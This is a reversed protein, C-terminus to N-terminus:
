KKSRRIKAATLGCVASAGLLVTWVGVPTNDGTKPTQNEGDSVNDPNQADTGGTSGAPTKGSDAAPNKGPDETPEKGPDEAPDKGPDEGPEEGPEEKLVEEAKAAAEELKDKLDSSILEKQADSLADYAEKVDLVSQANDETIQDAAPLKEIQEAVQDAAQQDPDEGPEEKLVEEAKAAAEELRDKLDSSILEKQADSLADYAEKVDLVSQANDKTIQDAAPLKEIQGAVQDAAQQDPDEGPEEGPEEKLAEEAKAAAAELRDKLDSSILEKQADSLADYAEKVDLVSQANDKIIQDAAPLSGIQEAVDQAAALDDTSMYETVNWERIAISANSKSNDMTMRISKTVVPEFAYTNDEDAVFTDYSGAPTVQQWQGDSDLYEITLGDPLRAGGGDDYWNVVCESLVVDHDFTYSIWPDPIVEDAKWSCYFTNVDGDNANEKPNNGAGPREFKVDVVATKALYQEETIEKVFVRMTDKGRNNWAYYPIFTWEVSELSGSDTKSLGDAHIIMGEQIGYPDDGDDNNTLVNDVVEEEFNGTLFANRIDFDHDAGEAAYVVPGRKVAALGANSTVREDSHYAETEMPFDIEVKDGEAWERDIVIYGSEDPKADVAEGNVKVSNEKDAWAPVRLRLAFDGSNEVTIESTGYWPMQTEMNLGITQDGVTIDAQNGIYLNVTISDTDHTYIYGGLSTVTRMLNPPCCACGFWASRDQDGNSSMPNQYFFKDGDFNVGSIVSNYLATEVTDIYEADGNLLNMRQGWMMSGINACTEAYANDNPLYWSSGFGEASSTGGKSGIGGTVYTKTQLDEWISNLADDYDDADMWSAIDAMASYQYMARVSHGAAIDQNQVTTWNQRYYPDNLFDSFYGHNMEKGRMDLFFKALNVYDTVRSSYTGTKALCEETPTDKGLAELEECVTALKVLGLEIEQHGPYSEWKGEGFLRNVMDANRIAVNFLRLDEYNTARTYAAAAEYFHGFCYMEHWSFNTLRKVGNTKGAANKLTFYTQLYGDYQDLEENDVPNGEADLYKEQAGEIYGIWTDILSRFEDQKAIVEEDGAPDLQLAYSMAEIMKYTDTDLFYLNDTAGEQWGTARFYPDFDDAETGGYYGHLQAAHKLNELGGSNNSGTKSINEIGTPIVECIFEKQKASWFDDHIVVDNFNVAKEAEKGSSAPITVDFTKEKTDEGLTIEATFTVNVDESGRNVKAENDAVEVAGKGDEATWSIETGWEGATQLRKDYYLKEPFELADYASQLKTENDLGCMEEVEAQTAAMSYITINDIAGSLNSPSYGSQGIYKESNTKAIGPNTTSSIAVDQKVGNRYIAIEQTESNYVAVVHVWENEPFFSSVSGAYGLYKQGAMLDVGHGQNGLTLYWGTASDYSAQDKCWLLIQEGSYGGEPAKAWFSVTLDSPQLDVSNGLSIKANNVSLAKGSGDYGETYDVTGSELVPTHKGTGDTLDGDEFTMELVKSEELTAPEDEAWVANLDWEYIGVSMNSESNDMTMRVATTEVEEFEYTNDTRPTFVNYEGVPTVETWTTGDDELYEITLGNPVKVGTGDEFWNVICESVKIEKEFTYSIWPDEIVEDQKWSCYFTSTDGDKANEKPNNGAGPREFKVAVAADTQVNVANDEGAAQATQAPAAPLVSGAVLAMALAVAIKRKM